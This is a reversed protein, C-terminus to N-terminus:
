TCCSSCTSEGTKGKHSLRDLTASYPRITLSLHKNEQAKTMVLTVLTDMVFTLSDPDHRCDVRFHPIQYHSALSEVRERSVAPLSHSPKNGKRDTGVLLFVLGSSVDSYDEVSELRFM